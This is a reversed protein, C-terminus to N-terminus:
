RTTFDAQLGASSDPSQIRVTYKIKSVLGTAVSTFEATDSKYTFNPLTILSDNSGLLIASVKDGEKLGRIAISATTSTIKSVIIEANAVDSQGLNIERGSSTMNNESTSVSSNKNITFFPDTRGKEPLPDVYAGSANLSNFVPSNFLATDLSITNVGLLAKVFDNGLVSESTSVAMGDTGEPAQSKDKVAFLVVGVLIILAVIFLVKKSM